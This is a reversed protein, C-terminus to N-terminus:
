RQSAAPANGAKIDVLRDWKQKIAKHEPHNPEHLLIHIIKPDDEMRKLEDAAGQPSQINFTGRGGSPGEGDTAVINGIELLFKSAKAVGVARKFNTLEDGNFGFYTAARHVIDRNAADKAGWERSLDQDARQMAENDTRQRNAIAEAVMKNWGRVLIESGRKTVGAQPFVDRAFKDMGLDVKVGDFELTGYDKADKPVGIAQHFSTWDQDTANEGPLVVRNAGANRVHELHAKGM